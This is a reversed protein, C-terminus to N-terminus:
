VYLPLHALPLAGIPVNATSLIDGDHLPKRGAELLRDRSYLEKAERVSPHSRDAMVPCSIYSVGSHVVHFAGYTPLRLAGRAIRSFTADNWLIDLPPIFGHILSNSLRFTAQCEAASMHAWKVASIMAFTSPNQPPNRVDPTFVGDVDISPTKASRIIHEMINVEEHLQFSRITLVTNDKVSYTIEVYTPM